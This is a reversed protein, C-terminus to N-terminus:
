DFRRRADSASPQRLTVEPSTEDVAHPALPAADVHAVVVSLPRTRLADRLLVSMTAIPSVAAVEVASNQNSGVFPVENRVYALM